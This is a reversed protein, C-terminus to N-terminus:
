SLSKPEGYVGGCQPPMPCPHHHHILQIQLPFSPCIFFMNPISDCAGTNFGGQTGTEMDTKTFLTSDDKHLM